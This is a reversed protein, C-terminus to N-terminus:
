AGRRLLFSSALPSCEFNELLDQPYDYVATAAQLDEDPYGGCRFAITRVSLRLAADISYPSGAIMFTEVPYFALRELAAQILPAGHPSPSDDERSIRPAALTAPGVIRLLPEFEDKDSSSTLLVHIGERHLMAVLTDACRFPRILPLYKAVFIEKHTAVIAHGLSSSEPVGSVSSVFRDAEMGLHARITAMGPDFGHQRLAEFWAQAHAPNSDLLTGNVDLIVGRVPRKM